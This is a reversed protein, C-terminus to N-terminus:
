SKSDNESEGVTCPLDQSSAAKRPLRQWLGSKQGRALADRVTLKAMEKMEKGRM